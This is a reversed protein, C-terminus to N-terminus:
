VYLWAISIFVFFSFICKITPTVINQTLFTFTHLLLFFLPIIPFVLHVACCVRTYFPSRYNLVETNLKTQYQLSNIKSFHGPYSIISIYKRGIIKLIKLTIKLIQVFNACIQMNKHKQQTRCTHM